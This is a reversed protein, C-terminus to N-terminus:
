AEPPRGPFGPLRWGFLIAGARVAFASLFGLGGALWPDLSLAGLGVFAAAGVLSASVYLERRLLVSPEHALVDRIIGGCTSTLVGM